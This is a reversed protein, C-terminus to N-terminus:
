SVGSRMDPSHPLKRNWRKLEIENRRDTSAALTHGQRRRRDRQDLTQKLRDRGDIRPIIEIDQFQIFQPNLELRIEYMPNGAEM